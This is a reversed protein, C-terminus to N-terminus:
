LKTGTGTLTGRHDHQHQYYQPPASYLEALMDPTLMEQPPGLCPRDKCLCLVLNASRHVVSLDHSVMIVTLGKQRRLQAVLEYIREEALEDLSATPEDFLLVNPNGLLAFAILAKQFQGGSVVGVNAHLLDRSLGVIEAVSEIEKASLKLFRAKAALLDYVSLPLQRDAAVRQPVYGVRAAPSWVIDGQFPVLGLLAKLLVTKGSGNPGIVALDDGAHVDFSLGRIVIRNGFAISLNRVSLINAPTM